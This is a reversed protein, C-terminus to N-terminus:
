PMQVEIMGDASISVQSSGAEIQQAPVADMREMSKMAATRLPTPPFMGSSNLNLNVLKYSRGGLAETTLQARSKFATVAERLLLDEYKRRTEDAIAFEMGGMKLEGLLDATLRSLAAFDTSELRLNARERWAVIRSGEKDYVPYSNRSGLSVKVEKVQRAQRVAANLHRTIESALQSADNNQAESYLNVQMLDHPVERSVEARLAIQNYRSEALAPLCALAALALIGARRSLAIM